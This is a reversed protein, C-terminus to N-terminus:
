GCLRRFLAVFAAVDVDILVQQDPRDDWVSPGFGQGAPKQISHGMAEGDTIVRVPGMRGTFLSPQVIYALAAPDHLCIGPIGKGQYFREYARSVRWIFAGHPGGHDRMEQLTQSSLVSKATVDLGVVTLPWRAACVRDAAIADQYFNAEAAPTINGTVGGTGFAGGMAVVAKVLVALDPARHLAQALNTLPGVALLVVEGPFRRVTEIIFGAADDSAVTRQPDPWDEDGLGTRGHVDLAYRPAPAGPMPVAAGRVVPCRLDFREALLLANRTTQDLPANGFVTTIGLLDISSTARLMCMALMDDVGPDTDLIVRTRSTTVAPELRAM